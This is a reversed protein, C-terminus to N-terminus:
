RAKLWKEVSPLYEPHLKPWYPFDTRGVYNVAHNADKLLLIEYRDNQAEELAEVIIKHSNLPIIEDATGQIVLLPQQTKQFHPVPSYLLKKDVEVEDLNPVWIDGSWSENKESKLAKELDKRSIKGAIHEFVKGQLEAASELDEGFVQHNRNKWYNLDSELLTSGPCSVVIGYKLEPVDNLIYPIKASGQSSGKIGIKSLPISTRESFYQIAHIDDSLLEEMTAAQWNGESVGTGRKDYHFTTYGIKSFHIAEARSASRDAGGSSSIFVIAEGNSQAPQWLTGGIQLGNSTFITEEATLGNGNNKSDRKLAYKTKLTDVLLTGSLEDFNATWKNKFSYTYRDSQLVFNISDENIEVQRAPISVANQELSTFFVKWDASDKQIEFSIIDSFNGYTFVGSFTGQKDAEKKKSKPGCSVLAATIFLTFLIKM